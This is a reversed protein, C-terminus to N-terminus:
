QLYQKSLDKKSLKDKRRGENRKQNKGKKESRNNVQGEQEVNRKRKREQVDLHQLKAVVKAIVIVKQEFLFGTRPISENSGWM